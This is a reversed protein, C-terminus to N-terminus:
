FLEGGNGLLLLNLMLSVLLLLMLLLLLRGRRQTSDLRRRKMFRSGGKEDSHVVRACLKGLSEREHLMVVTLIAVHRVPAFWAVGAKGEAKRLSRSGRGCLEKLVKLHSSFLHKIDIVKSSLAGRSHVFPTRVRVSIQIAVKDRSSWKARAFGPRGVVLNSERKIGQKRESEGWQFYAVDREYYEVVFRCGIFYPDGRLSGIHRVTDEDRGVICSTEGGQKEEMSARVESHKLRVIKFAAPSIVAVEDRVCGLLSHKPM